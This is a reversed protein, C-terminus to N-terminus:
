SDRTNEWVQLIWDAVAPFDDLVVAPPIQEPQARELGAGYGTRVLVSKKVGAKRGCELDIAKDGVMYSRSLDIGLEDRADFLFEPSPKRGRGPDDPTGPAVYIKDIRVGERELEKGIFRHVSALQDWTFYGRGIGSQNTVMILKFGSERLRRLARQVGPYFEIDKPDSLYCKEVIITGDRDFFVAANM